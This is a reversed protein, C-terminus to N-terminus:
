PPPSAVGLQSDQRAALQAARHHRQRCVPASEAGRASSSPQHLNLQDIISTIALTSVVTHMQAFQTLRRASECQDAMYVHVLVSYWYPIIRMTSTGPYTYMYTCTCATRTGPYATRYVRVMYLVLDGYQDMRPARMRAGGLIVCRAFVWFRKGLIDRLRSLTCYPCFMLSTM